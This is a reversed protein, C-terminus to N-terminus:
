QTSTQIYMANALRVCKTWGCFRIRNLVHCYNLHERSHQERREKKAVIVQARESRESMRVCPNTRDYAIMTHTAFYIPKKDRINKQHHLETVSYKWSSLSHIPLPHLSPNSEGLIPTCTGCAVMMRRGLPSGVFECVISGFREVKVEVLNM